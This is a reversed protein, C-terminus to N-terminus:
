GKVSKRAYPMKTQVKGLVFMENGEEKLSSVTDKYSDQLLTQVLKINKQGHMM